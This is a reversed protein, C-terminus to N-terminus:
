LTHVPADVPKHDVEKNLLATRESSGDPRLRMYDSKYTFHLSSYLCFCLSWFVLLSFLLAHGLANANGLREPRTMESVQQDAAARSYGFSGSVANLVANGAISAFGNQICFEWAVASATCDEPVIDIFMPKNCGNACWTAVLGLVLCLIAQYAFTWPEPPLLYFMAFVVPMGLLVSTQAVVARGHYPSWEALYDGFCGGAFHGIGQGVLCLGFALGARADTMGAYQFYLTTLNLAVWPICGVIGQAVIISFTRVQMFSVLKKLESFVGVQHPRWPRPSDEMCFSVAAALLISLLGIVLFGIRWGAYGGYEGNSIATVFLTTLMQGCLRNSLEIIGFARGRSSREVAEATMSQVVPLLSALFFGASGRLVVAMWLSEVGAMIVTVVGWGMAGISLVVSHKAGNDVFVAWFPGALALAVGQALQMWLLDVLELHLDAELARFSSYLLQQDAGDAVAVACLLLLNPSRFFSAEHGTKAPEIDERSVM